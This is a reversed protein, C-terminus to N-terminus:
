WTSNTLKLNAIKIKILGNDNLVVSQLDAATCLWCMHQFIQSPLVAKECKPCQLSISSCKKDHKKAIHKSIKILKVICNAKKDCWPCLAALYRGSKTKRLEWQTTPTPPDSNSNNSSPPAPAVCCDQIHLSIESPKVVANCEPCFNSNIPSASGFCGAYYHPGIESPLVATKCGPCLLSQGLVFYGSRIKSHVSVVHNYINRLLVLTRNGTKTKCWPCIVGPKGSESKTLKWYKASPNSDSYNCESPRSPKKCYEENYEGASAQDVKSQETELTTSADCSAQGVQSNGTEEPESISESLIVVQEVKEASITATMNSRFSSYVEIHEIVNHKERVHRKPNSLSDIRKCLKYFDCQFSKRGRKKQSSVDDVSKMLIKAIDLASKYSPLDDCYDELDVNKYNEVDLYKLVRNWYTYGKVKMKKLETKGLKKALTAVTDEDVGLIVCNPYKELYRFLSSIAESEEACVIKDCKEVDEFQKKFLFTGDEERTMHLAQLLDGGLKYCDLYEEIGSPKVSRFFCDDSGYVVCGIQTLTSSSQKSTRFLEIHVSVITYKGPELDHGIKESVIKPLVGNNGRKKTLVTEGFANDNDYTSRNNNCGHSEEHDDIYITNVNEEQIPVNATDDNCSNRSSGSIIDEVIDGDDDVPSLKAAKRVEYSNQEHIQQKRKLGRTCDKRLHGRLGCRKCEMCQASTM